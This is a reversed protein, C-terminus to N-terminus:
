TIFIFEIVKCPYALLVMQEVMSYPLKNTISIKEWAVKFM